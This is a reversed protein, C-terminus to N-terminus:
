RRHRETRWWRLPDSLWDDPDMPALGFAVRVVHGRRHIVLGRSAWVEQSWASGLGSELVLEPSGLSAMSAPDPVPEHLEIGVVTDGLVWCIVGRPAAATAPYRRFQAPEGGFQGGHLEDELPPGLQHDASALSSSALGHFAAWRGAVLDALENV